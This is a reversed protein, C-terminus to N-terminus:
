LSTGNLPLLEVQIYLSYLGRLREDDRFDLKYVGRGLNNNNAAAVRAASEYTFVLVKPDFAFYDGRDIMGMPRTKPDGLADKSIQVIAFWKRLNEFGLSPGAGAQRLMEFELDRDSWANAVASKYSTELSVGTDWEWISPMIVLVHEERVLEGEWILLPPHDGTPESDREWPKGGAPFTDREHFGGNGGFISHGSGARIREPFGNTDGMVLSRIDPQRRQGGTEYLKVSAQVFIEDDVGDRQLADDYTSRQCAFGNITIRFRGSSAPTAPPPRSDCVGREGVRDSFRTAVSGAGSSSVIISGGEFDQYSTSPGSQRGTGFSRSSPASVCRREDSVPFGLSAREYGEKVYKAFIVGKVAHVGTRPSYYVCGREFCQYLGKLGVTNGSATPQPRESDYRKNGLDLTLASAEMQPQLDQGARVDGVGSDFYKRVLDQGRGAFDQAILNTFAATLVLCAIALVTLRGLKQVAKM